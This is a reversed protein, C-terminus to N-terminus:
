LQDAQLDSRTNSQVRHEAEIQLLILRLLNGAILM